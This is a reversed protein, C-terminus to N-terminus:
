WLADLVGYLVQKGGSLVAVPADAVRELTGTMASSMRDPGNTAYAAAAAYPAGAAADYGHIVPPPATWVPVSGAAKWRRDAAESRPQSARQAMGASRVAIANRSTKRARADEPKPVLDSKSATSALAATSLKALVRSSDRDHTRRDESGARAATDSKAESATGEGVNSSAKRETSVATSGETPAAVPAAAPQAASPPKDSDAVKDRIDGVVVAAVSASTTGEEGRSMSMGGILALLLFVDSGRLRFAARRAGILPKTPIVQLVKM